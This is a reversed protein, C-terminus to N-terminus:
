RRRAIACTCKPQGCRHCRFGIGTSKNGFEKWVWASFTPVPSPRRSPDLDFAVKNMDEVHGRYHLYVSTLWSFVDAIELEWEITKDQEKPLPINQQLRDAKRLEVEVEGIEELFHFTKEASTRSANVTGYIDEFMAVWADLSVPKEHGERAMDLTVRVAQMHEERERKTMKDVHMAPCECQPKACFACVKPYKFWIMESLKKGSCLDKFDSDLRCKTTMSCLWSFVRPVYPLAVHFQGRRMGEAIRTSDAVMQLMIDYLPLQADLTGYLVCFEEQWHDLPASGFNLATILPMGCREGGCFADLDDGNYAENHLFDVHSVSNGNEGYANLM